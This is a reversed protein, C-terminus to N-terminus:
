PERSGARAPASATAPGAKKLGEAYQGILEANAWQFVLGAGKLQIRRWHVGMRTLVNMFLLHRLRDAKSIVWHVPASPAYLGRAKLYRALSERAESSYPWRFAANSSTNKKRIAFTGRPVGAEEVLRRAIPRDYATNLTWPKMEDTRGIANIEGARRIGWWPVVTHFVGQILRFEGLLSDMDGAPDSLDHPERDWVKDGYSGNFLLCLPEPYDFLTLNLGGQRGSAAWLTAERRYTRFDQRYCRCEMGLCRAIDEGSDSGRWLSTANVITAAQRCGAHRAVVATAPSDYGSSISVLPAVRNRRGTAAMNAKLQRATDVLFAHYDGFTKFHPTVDPKDIEALARGNYVLNRFYGLRVDGSPTPISRVYGSLRQTEISMMDAAYRSYDECLEIGTCALLAPLSNSVHWGGAREVYWLRDVGTASSVFVARDGRLRVGSGFVLDTRDFDGCAFDGAWVAEVSWNEATEVMPGHLVEIAEDGSVFTAVWALKPWGPVLRPSLRM